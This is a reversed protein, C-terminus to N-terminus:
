EKVVWVKLDATVEPHIKVPVTFIGLSKLPEDLIIKKKDIEIGENKLSNYIDASTVSGFLKDEEGVPKTVTCSVSEVRAALKEAEKKVKNLKEQVQRKQHDLKKINQTTAMIAKGNPILFNRAYGDKVKILDGANGLHTIDETLIIDM